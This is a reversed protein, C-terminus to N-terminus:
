HGNAVYHDTYGGFGTDSADSYVVWVAGPQCHIFLLLMILPLIDLQTLIYSCYM